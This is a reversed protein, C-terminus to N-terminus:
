QTVGRSAGFPIWLNIGARFDDTSLGASKWGVRSAYDIEVYETYLYITPTDPRKTLGGLSLRIGPGYKTNNSWAEKNWDKNLFDHVYDLRFYPELAVGHYAVRLGIKPSLTLINFKDKGELYFNTSHYTLDSWMEFWLGGMIGIPSLKYNNDISIWSNLGTRFDERPINDPIDVGRDIFSIGLYETYYDLNAYNVRIGYEKGSEIKKKHEMRVRVGPGYKLNNNWFFKNHEKGGLDGLLEAKFYPDIFLFDNLYLRYGGRTSLISIGFNKQTEYWANTRQYGIDSGIELWWHQRKQTVDVALASRVDLLWSIVVMTLIFTALFVVKVLFETRLGKRFGDMKKGGKWRGLKRRRNKVKGWAFYVTGLLLSRPIKEQDREKRAKILAEAKSKGNKLHQYFLKMYEVTEQSTVEWLSVVVSRAGAHQFARAFNVVGEGEMAKGRGTLCASLVVMDADLPLELVETLTLFGDDKGKNEVQGLLLFPEKIGQVKGPLDVHTAFHLYRYNKLPVKRLETENANINLLVDPPDIKVGYLRAITKVEDETETLPIFEIEKGEKDDKTTKGWERRTALARYSYQERNQALLTPQPRGQKFALYRPDNKDYIPNGLAFLPRAAQSPKLLRNLALVTASQAYSIKFKDGVYLSDKYDTGGKMVLAEFPLLGLIGDPVIIINKDTPIDKLAEALLLEYLKQGLVSSFEEKRIGQPSQLPLMFENVFAEIEEKSKPIKILKKVSRPLGASGDVVFLYGAKDTLEYELLVEDDRLPLDEVKFPKPYMLAAYRPYEKRLKAILEDMEAKAKRYREQHEKFAEEGKKYAEEKIEDLKALQAALMIEKERLGAPIESSQYRRASVAIEEILTRAKTSESFYFTASSLIEGRIIRESLTSVLGEYARLRKGILFFGKANENKRRRMEELLLYANFFDQSAEQIRELGNLAIGRLTYFISLQSESSGWTPEIKKLLNIANVYEKEGLNVEILGWGVDSINMFLTGMGKEMVDPSLNLNKLNDTWLDTKLLKSAEIFQDEAKKYNKQALNIYGIEYLTLGRYLSKLISPTFGM